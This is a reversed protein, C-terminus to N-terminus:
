HLAPRDGRRQSLHGFRHAPTCRGWEIKERYHRWEGGEKLIEASILEAAAAAAAAAAAEEEEMASGVVLAVRAEVFLTEEGM